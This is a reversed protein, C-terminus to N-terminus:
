RSGCGCVGSSACECSTGAHLVVNTVLESVLLSVVDALEDAGWEVLRAECFRRATAVSSPRGELKLGDAM